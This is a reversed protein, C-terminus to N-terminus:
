QKKNKKKKIVTAVVLELV